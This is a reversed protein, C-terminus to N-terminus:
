LCPLHGVDLVVAKQADVLHDLGDAEALGHDIAQDLLLAEWLRALGPAHRATPTLALDLRPHDRRKRRALGLHALLASKSHQGVKEDFGRTNPRPTHSEM